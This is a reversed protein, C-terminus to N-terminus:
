TKLVKQEEGQKFSQYKVQVVDAEIQYDLRDMGRPVPGGVADGKLNFTGGRCRLLRGEFNISCGLHPCSSTFADVSGDQRKILWVRGIEDNPHLTWADQRVDRIVVQHPVDVELESLRAVNRFDSPPAPRNRPDILYAVAPVGIVAGFIASLGQTAWKLFARRDM